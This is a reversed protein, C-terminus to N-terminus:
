ALDEFPDEPADEERWDLYKWTRAMHDPLAATLHLRKGTVPHALSLSRAHLHLKRSLEGGLGAGPHLEVALADHRSALHTVDGHDAVVRVVDSVPRLCGGIM